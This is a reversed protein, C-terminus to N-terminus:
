LRRERQLRKVTIRRSLRQRAQRILHDVQSFSLGMRGAIEKYSLGEFYKLELARREDAPLDAIVPAIDDGSDRGAAEWRQLDVHRQLVRREARAKRWWERCLSRAIQYVWPAFRRHDKLESLKQYARLFTEQSLDEAEASRGDLLKRSLAFVPREYAEVLPRFAARDGALVRAILRPEDLGHVTRTRQGNLTSISTWGVSRRNKRSDPIGPSLIEVLM